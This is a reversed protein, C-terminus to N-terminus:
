IEEGNSDKVKYVPPARPIQSSITFIESTWKKTYGKSFLSRISSLRVSDGKKFTYRLPTTKTFLYMNEWLTNENSKNVDNPAMKITRHYTNNYSSVIKDIVDIYKNTNFHTLYRYLKEKLKRIVREVICAKNDSQVTYFNIENVKLFKIFEKGEDTQLQKPKRESKNLILEFAFIISKSTKNKIPVVFVFKSLVDIVVLVYKFNDNYRAINQFDALDAQWTRDIGGVVLQNREYKFKRPYHFTYSNQSQLWNKIQPKSVLKKQSPELARYFTELGSFSGPQSPDIYKQIVKENM